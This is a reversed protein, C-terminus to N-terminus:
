LRAAQDVMEHRWILAVGRAISATPRLVQYNRSDLPRRDLKDPVLSTAFHNLILRQLDYEEVSDERTYSRRYISPLM